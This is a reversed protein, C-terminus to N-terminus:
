GHGQEHTCRRFLRDKPLHEVAEEIAHGILAGVLSKAVLGRGHRVQVAMHDFTRRGGQHRRM